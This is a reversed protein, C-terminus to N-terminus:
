HRFEAAWVSDPKKERGEKRRKIMKISLSYKIINYKMSLYPRNSLSLGLSYKNELM